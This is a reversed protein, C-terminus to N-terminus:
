SKFIDIIGDDGVLGSGGCTPCAGTGHCYECEPSGSNLQVNRGDGHCVRWKGNAVGDCDLCREYM